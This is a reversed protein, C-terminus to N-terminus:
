RPLGERVVYEPTPAITLGHEPTASRGRSASTAILDFLGIVLPVILLWIPLIAGWDHDTM